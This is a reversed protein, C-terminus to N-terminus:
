GFDRQLSHRVGVSFSVAASVLVLALALQGVILSSKLRRQARSGTSGRATEKLADATSIRSALWAPALGFTLGTLLAAVAAFLIVHPDLPIADSGPYFATIARNTWFALLVGGSGGIASLLFSETLLPKMLAFRSAGLAARVAMEHSRGFARALQVSALNACAIVLVLLALGTILWYVKRADDDINSSALPIVRISQGGNDTPDDQALRAALVTLETQAAALSVGPRLRATIDFWKANRATSFGPWLTLPRIFNLQSWIPTSDFVPPLVGIVTFTESNIRLTHGIVGPDGAFKRLWYAHSIIAVQGKGPRDEDPAFGRGLFPQVGITSLFDATVHLVSTQEPLQDGVSVNYDDPYSASVHSFSTCAARLDLFNGPSHPLSPSEPATRFIRVLRDGDPFPLARLLAVNTISFASTSLGIGLILMLVAVISFGPSRALTRLAHKLTFLM